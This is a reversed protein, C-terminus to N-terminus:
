KKWPLTVPNIIGGSAEGAYEKVNQANEEEVQRRAAQVVDEPMYKLFGDLKDRTSKMATLIFQRQDDTLGSVELKKAFYEQATQLVEVAETGAQSAKLVNAQPTVYASAAVIRDNLRYNELMMNLAMKINNRQTDKFKGTTVLREQQATAEQVRSVYYLAEKLKDTSLDVKPLTQTPESGVGIDSPSFALAAEAGGLAAAAAAAAPAALAARRGPAAAPEAAWCPARPWAWTGCCLLLGLKVWVEPGRAGARRRSGRFQM